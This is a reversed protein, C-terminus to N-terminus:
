PCRRTYTAGTELDQSNLQYYYIDGHPCRRLSLEIERLRKNRDKAMVQTYASKAGPRNHQREVYRQTLPSQASVRLGEKKIKRVKDLSVLEM